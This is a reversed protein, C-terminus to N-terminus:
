YRRPDPMTPSPLNSRPPENGSPRRDGSALEAQAAVLERTAATMSSVALAVENAQVQQKAERDELFADWLAYSRELHSHLAEVQALESAATCFGTAPRYQLLIILLLSTGAVAGAAAEVEWEGGGLRSVGLAIAAIIFILLLTVISALFSYYRMRIFRRAEKLAEDSGLGTRARLGAFASRQFAAQRPSPPAAEVSNPGAEQFAPRNPPEPSYAAAVRPNMLRESLSPRRGAGDTSPERGGALADERDSEV